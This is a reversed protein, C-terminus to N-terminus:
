RLKEEIIDESEKGKMQKPASCASLREDLAFKIRWSYFFPRVRRDFGLWPAREVPIPHRSYTLSRKTELPRGCMWQSVFATEVAAGPM